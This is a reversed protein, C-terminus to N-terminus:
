PRVQTIAMNSAMELYLTSVAGTANTSCGGSGNTDGGYVSARDTHM